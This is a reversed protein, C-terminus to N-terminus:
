TAQPSTAPIPSVHGETPRTEWGSREYSPLSCLTQLAPPADGKVRTLRQGQTSRLPLGGCQRIEKFVPPVGHFPLLKDKVLEQPDLLLKPRHEVTKSHFVQISLRRQVAVADAPAGPM